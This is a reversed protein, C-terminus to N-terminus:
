LHWPQIFPMAETWSLIHTRWIIFFGLTFCRLLHFSFLSRISAMCPILLFFISIISYLQNVSIRIFIIYYWSFMGPGLASDHKGPTNGLIWPCSFLILYSNFAGVYPGCLLHQHILASSVLICLHSSKGVAREYKLNLNELWCSYVLRCPSVPHLKGWPGM